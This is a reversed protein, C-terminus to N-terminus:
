RSVFDAYARQLYSKNLKELQPDGDHQSNGFFFIHHAKDTIIGTANENCYFGFGNKSRLMNRSFPYHQGLSLGASITAAIDHQAVVREISKGKLNPHLAGGTFLLTVRRSEPFNLNRNLPLYHGHDAVLVFLTNNYWSQKKVQAFYERLCHDTYYAARCFKDYDSNSKFPTEIPVEWPEHTSLTLLGSFFPQKEKNLFDIQKQLVSGDHAGWKSNYESANFDTKDCIYDMSHQNLFSGMNAFEIDGGYFFSTAYGQKKLDDSLAPLTETKAPYALITNDPQAPYGSFVAVLGQDTRYGSAYANKCWLSENILSDTFPAVGKTAGNRELVDATWSELLIIVVNPKRTTTLSDGLATNEEPLLFDETIKQAEEESYFHYKDSVFFFESASHLFYFVPNIALHNNAPFSSYSASSENIPILQWGGRIGFFLLPIGIIFHLFVKKVEQYSDTIKNKLVIIGWSLGVLLVPLLILKWTDMFHSIEAPNKLYLLLRKNLLTKWSEYLGINSILITVVLPILLFHLWKGLKHWPGKPFYQYLIWFLFPLTTLYCSMSLDLRLAAIFARGTHMAGGETQDSYLLLFLLRFVAFLLMWFLILQIPYPVRNRFSNM